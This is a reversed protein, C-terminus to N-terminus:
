ACRRRAAKGGTQRGLHLDLHLKQVDSPDPGIIHVTPRAAVFFGIGVPDLIAGDPSISFVAHTNAEAPARDITSPTLPYDYPDIAMWVGFEESRIIKVM